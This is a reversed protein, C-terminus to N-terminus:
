ALDLGRSKAYEDLAAQAEEASKFKGLHKAGAVFYDDQYNRNERQVYLYGGCRTRYNYRRM